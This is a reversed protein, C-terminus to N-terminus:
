RILAFELRANKGRRGAGTNLMPSIPGTTFPDQVRPGEGLVLEEDQTTKQCGGPGRAMARGDM